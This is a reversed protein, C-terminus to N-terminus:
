VKSMISFFGMVFIAYSIFGLSILIKVIFIYSGDNTLPSNWAKQRRRKAALRAAKRKEQREKKAAKKAEKEAAKAAEPDEPADEKKDEEEAM